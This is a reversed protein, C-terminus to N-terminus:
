RYGSVRQLNPQFLQPLTIGSSVHAVLVMGFAETVGDILRRALMKDQAIALVELEIEDNTIGARGMIFVTKQILETPVANM